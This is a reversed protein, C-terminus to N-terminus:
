RLIGSISTQLNTFYSKIMKSAFRFRIQNEAMEAMEKDINVHSEGSFYEEAEPIEAEVAEGEIHQGSGSGIPIHMEQTRIGSTSLNQQERFMEEFKVRSPTFGSSTANAINNATVKQRLAYADLAKNM